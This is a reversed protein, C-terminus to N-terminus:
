FSFWYFGHHLWPNMVHLLIALLESGIRYRSTALELNWSSRTRGLLQIRMASPHICRPPSGRPYSRGLTDAEVQPKQRSHTPYPIKRNTTEVLTPLHEQQFSFFFFFFFKFFFFFFFFQFFFNSFFFFQFFFFFNFFLPPFILPSFIRLNFNFTPIGYLKPSILM